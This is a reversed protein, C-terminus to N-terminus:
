VNGSLEPFQIRPSMWSQSLPVLASSRLAGLTQPMSNFILSHANLRGAEVAQQINALTYSEWKDDQLCLIQLRNFFDLGLKQGLDKMLKVSKDIGCGSTSQYSEDLALVVVRSKFVTGAGKLPMDHATWNKTFLNLEAQILNVEPEELNRDAMYIWIRSSEPLHSLKEM